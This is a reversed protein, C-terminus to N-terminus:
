NSGRPSTTRRGTATTALQVDTLEDSLIINHTMGMDLIIYHLFTFNNMSSFITFQVVCAVFYIFHKSLSM